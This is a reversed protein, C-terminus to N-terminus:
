IGNGLKMGTELRSGRLFSSSEMRKKGEPQLESIVLINKGTKVYIYEGSIKVIEGIDFSGIDVGESILSDDEEVFSKLIKLM